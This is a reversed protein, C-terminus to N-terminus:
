ARGRLEETRTINKSVHRVSGRAPSYGGGLLHFLHGSEDAFGHCWLRSQSWVRIQRLLVPLGRRSSGQPSIPGPTPAISRSAPCIPRGNTICQNRSPIGRVPEATLPEHRHDREQKRCKFPVASQIKRGLLARQNQLHAPSSRDGVSRPLMATGAGIFRREGLTDRAAADLRDPHHLVRIIKRTCVRHGTM